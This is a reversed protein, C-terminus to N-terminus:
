YAPLYLPYLMSEERHIREVLVKGVAALDEGFTRLLETQTELERYKALFSLVTKGIGDMERRFEHILAHSVPDQVLAHELYVYLRVNETLLHDQIASRFADLHQVVASLNKAALAEHVQGMIRLLNQHDGVLQTVLEPHYGIHTGPASVQRAPPPPAQKAPKASEVNRSEKKGFLFDLFV